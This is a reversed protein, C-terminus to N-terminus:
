PSPLKQKPTSDKKDAKGGPADTKLPQPEATSKQQGPRANLHHANAQTTVYLVNDMVVSRLDAMDALLRVATDIPVNNLTLTMPMKAIEATRPDLVVNIGSSDGLERLADALPMHDFAADIKVAWRRSEEDKWSEPRTRQWTTVLIHDPKILYSGSVQDTIMRLVTSLRVGILKPLRIEQEAAESGLEEQFGRRDLIFSVEYRDSLFDLAEQLKTGQDFGKELTVPKALKERMARASAEVSKEQPAAAPPAQWAFGGAVFVVVLGSVILSRSM